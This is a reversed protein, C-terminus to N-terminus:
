RFIIQDKYDPMKINEGFIERVTLEITESMTELALDNDESGFPEEIQLVIADLAMFTYAVFVCIVPTMWGISDVLGFPLLLCYIYVTRHLLIAYPYPIPTNSIRECGGLIESLDNLNKDFMSATISDMRHSSRQQQLWLGMEKILMTPRFSAALIREAVDRPLLRKLDASPDSKRLQHRLSHTFAVLLVMFHRAEPSEQQHGSFSVVQRALSRSVNVLAGWLKRGEWFREYAASNRFGLFIALAIGMLTFPTANLSVKVSFFVGHFYLVLSSLVFIFILRPLVEPLVSGKWVFLMKLWNFRTRIVM